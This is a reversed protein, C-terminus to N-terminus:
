RLHDDYFGACLRAIRALLEDNESFFGYSHGRGGVDVAQAKLSQAASLCGEPPITPDDSGFLLLSPGSYVAAAAAAPDSYRLLDDFWAACVREHESLLASGTERAAQHLAAFREAGGFIRQLNASDSAPALLVVADPAADEALLELVVRGGMSYGFLSVSTVGLSERAYRIAARMDEKMHTLTNATFPETSAGCGPFDMRISSIGKRALERAIVKFGFREDRTGHHGHAMIVIPKGQFSASRTLTAPIIQGRSIYTFEHESIRPQSFLFLLLLAAALLCLHFPLHIRKEM